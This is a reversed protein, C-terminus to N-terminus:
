LNFYCHPGVRDVKYGGFFRRIEMEVAKSEDPLSSKEIQIYDNGNLALLRMTDRHNEEEDVPPTPVVPVVKAKETAGNATSGLPNRPSASPLPSASHLPSPVAPTHNPRLSNNRNLSSSTTSSPSSASKGKPPNPPRMSTALPTRDPAVSPVSHYGPGSSPPPPRPPLGPISPQPSPSITPISPTLSSSSSPAKQSASRRNEEWAKRRREMEEHFLGRCVQGDGDLVVTAARAENGNGIRRGDEHLAAQAAKHGEEEEDSFKIWFLGLPAGTARDVQSIFDEVVGYSSFHRRVQAAATLPSL